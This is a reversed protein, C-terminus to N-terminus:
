RRPKDNEELIEATLIKAIKTRLAQAKKNARDLRLAQDCEALAAAYRKQGNLSHARALHGAVLSENGPKSSSPVIPLHSASSSSAKDSNPAAAPPQSPLPSPEALTKQNNSGSQGGTVPQESQLNVAVSGRDRPSFFWACFITLPIGIIAVYLNRKSHREGLISAKWSEIERPDPTTTWASVDQSSTGNLVTDNNPKKGGSSTRVRRKQNQNRKM